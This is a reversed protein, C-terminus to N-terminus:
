RPAPAPLFYLRLIICLFRKEHLHIEGTLVLGYSPNLVAFGMVKRCARHGSASIEAMIRTTFPHHRRTERFADRLEDVHQTLLSLRRKALNVTFFFSGGTVFNRRYDTM